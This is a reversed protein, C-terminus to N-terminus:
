VYTNDFLQIISTGLPLNCGHFLRRKEASKPNSKIRVKLTSYMILTMHNFMYFNNSQLNKVFFM